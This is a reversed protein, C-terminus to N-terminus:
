TNEITKKRTGKKDTFTQMGGQTVKKTPGAPEERVPGAM